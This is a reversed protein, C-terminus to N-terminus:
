KNYKKIYLYVGNDTFMVNKEEGLVNKLEKKRVFIRVTKGKFEKNEKKSSEEIIEGIVVSYGLFINPFFDSSNLYFIFIFIEFLFIICMSYVANDKMSFTSVLPFITSLIFGIYGCNYNDSVKVRTENGNGGEREANKFNKGISQRGVWGLICLCLLILVLISIYKDKIIYINFKKWRMRTWPLNFLSSIALIVNIPLIASIFYNYRFLFNSNIFM